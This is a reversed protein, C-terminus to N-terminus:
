STLVQNPKTAGAPVSERIVMRGQGAERNGLWEYTAGTGAEPGSFTRQLNPDLKEYPSWEAWRHFDAILPLIRDPAARVVISRQVRFDDRKTAAFVLVAAIGVVVVIAISKLM